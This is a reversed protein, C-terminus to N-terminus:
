LTKELYYSQIAEPNWICGSACDWGYYWNFQDEMRLEWHYPTILVGDYSDQVKEWPIIPENRYHSNDPYGFDKTFARMDTTDRLWLVNAEHHLDITYHHQYGKENFEEAVCWKLWGYDQEDSVWLGIPKDWCSESPTQHIRRLEQLPENTHHTLHPWKNM